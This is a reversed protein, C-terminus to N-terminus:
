HLVERCLAYKSVSLQMGGCAAIKRLFAPARDGYKVEMVVANRPLAPIGGSSDDFLHEANGPLAEVRTDFTLRCDLEPFEFAERTYRVIIAPFQGKARMETALILAKKGFQSFDAQADSLMPIASPSITAGYKETMIGRKVKRELQVPSEGCDYTRVRYKTHVRIGDLKEALASDMRDDYYLSTILQRGNDGHPDPLMAAEARSRIIAYERLDILFKEEHRSSM